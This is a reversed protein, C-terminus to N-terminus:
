DMVLITNNFVGDPGIRVSLSGILVKEHKANVLSVTLLYKGPNARLLYRGSEQAYAKGFSVGPFQQSHLELFLNHPEKIEAKIYIKGWLRVDPTLRALIILTLYLALIIYIFYPAHPYTGWVYLCCGILGFWFGVALLKKLLYELHPHGQDMKKKAQQNWDFGVPDMPINPAVVESNESLVFFEGHYINEFIGDKDGKAYESPFSYNTKRAHIKFKGPAALFGYRGAIDTVCTEIERGDSYLLKVIVPDLPQKSVSDYVIGWFREIKKLSFFNLIGNLIFLIELGVASVFSIKLKYKKGTFTPQQKLPSIKETETM